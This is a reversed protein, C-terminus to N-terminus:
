HLRLVLERGAFELLVRDREIAVVKVGLIEDGAVVTQNNIMAERGRSDGTIGQLTLKPPEPPPAVPTPAPAPAPKEPARGPITSEIPPMTEAAPTALPDLAEAQEAKVKEVAQQPVPKEMPAPTATGARFHDFAYVAIVAVALVGAVSALILVKNSGTSTTSAEYRYSPIVPPVNTPQYAADRTRKLAENILSM